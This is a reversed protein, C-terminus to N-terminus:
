WYIAQRCLLLYINQSYFGSTAPVFGFVFPSFRNSLIANALFCESPLDATTKGNVNPFIVKNWGKKLSLIDPTISPTPTVTGFIVRFGDSRGGFRDTIFIYAESGLGGKNVSSITISTDSWFSINTQNIKTATSYNQSNAFEIKGGGQSDGFNVGTVALSSNPDVVMPASIYPPAKFQDGRYFTTVGSEPYRGIQNTFSYDSYLVIYSNNFSDAGSFNLSIEGNLSVGEILDLNSSYSSSGIHWNGAIGGHIIKLNGNVDEVWQPKYLGQSAWSGGLSLVQQGVSWNLLDSSTTKYILAGNSPGRKYLMTYTTGIKKVSVHDVRNAGDTFVPNGNNQIVWSFGDTSKAYYLRIAVGDKDSGFLMRYDNQGEKWVESASARVSNSGHNIIPNGSYKNWTKGDAGTALGVSWYSGNYGEYYMKWHTSDERIVNPDAAYGSDFEGPQGATLLPNAVGEETWNFGDNSRVLWPFEVTEPPFPTYYMWYKYSDVSPNFVLVNPHTDNSIPYTPTPFPGPLFFHTPSRSNTTFIKVSQQGLLGTVKVTNNKVLVDDFDVGVGQGLASLGLHTGPLNTLLNDRIYLKNLGDFWFWINKEEFLIKIIHQNTDPVLGYTSLLTYTSGNRKYLRFFNDFGVQFVYDVISPSNSVRFFIEGSSALDRLTLKLTITRGKLPSIPTTVIARGSVSGGHLRLQGGVITPDPGSERMWEPLFSGDSFDDFFAPSANQKKGLVAAHVSTIPFVTLLLFLFILATSIKSM